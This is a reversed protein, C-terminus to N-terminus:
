PTFTRAPRFGVWYYRLAPVYWNRKASRAWAPYSDFSGGRLVRADQANVILTDEKDDNAKGGQGQPYSEFREQCWHSVHSQLDFLGFDNPKKSGVPWSRHQSNKLYLAYSPLLDETEGFYRSTVAGARTAYEMEAEQPLRYGSRQLYDRALKMGPKFGSDTRGLGFTAALPGLSGASLGVSSGALASLGKSDVLPEYCWESEPM